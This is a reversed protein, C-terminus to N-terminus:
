KNIHELKPLGVMRRGAPTLNNYSLETLCVLEEGKVHGPNVKLFFVVHPDKLHKKEIDAVGKKLPSAQNFRVIGNRSDYEDAFKQKAIINMINQIYPPTAQQYTPYFNKYFLPLFRYTKYGSSILLWYVEKAKGQEKLSQAFPFVYRSWVRSLKSYGWYAPSVITDGSYVATIAKDDIHTSLCMLTSFGVLEEQKNYLLIAAEKEALDKDFSEQTVNAFYLMLLKLMQHKEKDKLDVIMKITSQIIKAPM